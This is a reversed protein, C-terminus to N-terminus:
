RHWSTGPSVPDWTPYSTPSGGTGSWPRRAPGPSQAPTPVGAPQRTPHSPPPAPTAPSPPVSPRGTPHGAGPASAGPPPLTSPRGTPHGSAPAPTAPTNDTQATPKPTTPPTTPQPGPAQPAQPARHQEGNQQAVRSVCPGIGHQGPALSGTCTAVAHTVASGWVAPNPSGTAATAAVSGALALLGATALGAITKASAAWLPSKESKALASYGAQSPKPSPGAVTRVDRDIEGDLLGELDLQPRVPKM